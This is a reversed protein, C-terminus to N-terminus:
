KGCFTRRNKEKGAMMEMEKCKKCFCQIKMLRYKGAGTGMLALTGGLVSIPLLFSAFTGMAWHVTLMAVVLIISLWVSAYTALVGLLVMVGGLLELVGVFYAWFAGWSMPGIFKAMMGATGAHNLFLKNYGMYIFIVGVAIRLALLGWSKMQKHCHSMACCSQEEM